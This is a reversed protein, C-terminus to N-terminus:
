HPDALRDVRAGLLPWRPVGGVAVKALSWAWLLLGVAVTGQTAWLGARFLTLSSLLGIAALGLTFAGIVSLAGFGLVSQAAHWRSSRDRSELWLVLVGSIWGASYALLAAQRPTLGLSTREPAAPLASGSPRTPLKAM